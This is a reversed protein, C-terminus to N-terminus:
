LREEMKALAKEAEESTLFAEEGLLFELGYVAILIIADDQGCKIGVCEYASVTKNFIGYFTGGIKCPLHLWEAKATYYGCDSLCITSVGMKAECLEYHLCDKCTRM